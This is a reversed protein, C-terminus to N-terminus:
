ADGSRRKAIASAIMGGVNLTSMYQETLRFAQDDTMGSKTLTGFFDSVAAGFKASAAKGYIADTLSGLLGPLKDAVFEFIEKFQEAQVGHEEESM